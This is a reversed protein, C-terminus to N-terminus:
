QYVSVNTMEHLRPESILKGGLLFLFDKESNLKGSSVHCNRIRNCLSVQSRILIKHSFTDFNQYM